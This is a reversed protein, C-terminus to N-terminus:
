STLATEQPPLPLLHVEHDDFDQGPNVTEYEVSKVIKYVGFALL